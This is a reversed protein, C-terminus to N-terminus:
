FEALTEIVEDRDPLYAWEFSSSTELGHWGVCLIMSTSFSPVEKIPRQLLYAARVRMDPMHGTAM